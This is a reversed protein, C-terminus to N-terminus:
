PPDHIVTEGVIVADVVQDPDPVRDRGGPIGARGGDVNDARVGVGLSVMAYTNREEQRREWIFVWLIIGRCSVLSEGLGDGGGVVGEEVEGVVGLDDGGGFDAGDHVGRM